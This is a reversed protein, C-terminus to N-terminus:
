SSPHISRPMWGENALLLVSETTASVTQGCVIADITTSLRSREEAIWEGEAYNRLFSEAFEVPDDGVIARVAVGDSASQEFLDALDELLNVLIDGSTFAGRHVLYREVADAAARYNSPLRLKRTRYQEYGEKADSSGAVVGLWTAAVSM